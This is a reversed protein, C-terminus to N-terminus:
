GGFWGVCVTRGCDDAYLMWVGCSIFPLVRGVWGVLTNQTTTLCQTTLCWWSTWCAGGAAGMWWPFAPWSLAPLPSSWRVTGPWWQTAQRPPASAQLCAPLCCAPLRATPSQLISATYLLVRRPSRCATPLIRGAQAGASGSDPGRHQSTSVWGPPLLPQQGATTASANDGGSGPMPQAAAEAAAAAAEAAEACGQPFGVLRMQGATASFFAPPFAAQGEGVFGEQPGEAAVPLGSDAGASGNGTAAAETPQAEPEPQKRKKGKNSGDGRGRSQAVSLLAATTQSAVENAAVAQLVARQRAAAMLGPLLAQQERLLQQDLGPLEVVIVTSPRGQLCGHPCCECVEPSPRLAAVPVAVCRRGRLM